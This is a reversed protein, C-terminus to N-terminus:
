VDPQEQVTGVDLGTIRGCAQPKSVVLTEKPERTIVDGIQPGIEEGPPTPVITWPPPEPAM